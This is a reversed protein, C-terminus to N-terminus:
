KKKFIGIFFGNSHHISPFIRGTGNIIENNIKYSPSIWNPLDIPKLRDLYELIQLEGEEAYLSCTSYALTGGPKLLNIGSELLKRQLIM